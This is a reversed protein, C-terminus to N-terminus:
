PYNYIVELLRLADQKTLSSPLQKSLKPIEIADMPNKQMYGEGICWRFFVTLSKHFCIFTNPKWGRETRGYFFLRRVNEETVDEINKVEMNNSYFNLVQRYRRITPKAYGRIYSSHDYFRQGLLQIDM